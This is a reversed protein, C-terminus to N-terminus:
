ENGGQDANGEATLIPKAIRAAAITPNTAAIYHASTALIPHPEAPQDAVPAEREGAPPLAQRERRRAAPQKCRARAGSM